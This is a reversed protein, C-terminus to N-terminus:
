TVKVKVFKDVSDDDSDDAANTTNVFYTDGAPLDVTMWITQGPQIEFTSGLITGPAQKAAGKPPGGEQEFVTEFYTDFAEFAEGEKLQGIIFDKGKAGSSTLKFTREGAEVETPVGTPEADDPLTIAADEEPAEAASEAEAVEFSGVMGKAFHPVGEGETPLFCLMVYNGPELVDVTLSQTQGPQLIHGPTDIEEEIFDATPDQEEGGQSEGTARLADVLQDVTKGAKMRGMGAMHWEEGTNTSTITALGAGLKGKVKYGHDVMEIELANEGEGGAGTASGSTTTTGSSSVDDDDDGCAGLVGAMLAGVLVTRWALRRHM